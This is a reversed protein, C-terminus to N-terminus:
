FKFFNLSISSILSISKGFLPWTDQVIIFYNNKTSRFSHGIVLDTWNTFYKSKLRIRGCSYVYLNATPQQIKRKIQISGDVHYLTYFTSMHFSIGPFIYNQSRKSFSFGKDTYQVLKIQGNTGICISKWLLANLRGGKGEHIWFSCFKVIWIYITTIQIFMSSLM